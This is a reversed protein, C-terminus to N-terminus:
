DLFSHGLTSVETSQFIYQILMTSKEDSCIGQMLQAIDHQLLSREEAMQKHWRKIGAFSLPPINGQRHSYNSIRTGMEKMDALYLLKGETAGNFLAVFKPFAELPRDSGLDMPISNSPTFIVQVRRYGDFVSDESGRVRPLIRPEFKGSLRKNMVREITSSSCLTAASHPWSRGGSMSPNINQYCLGCGQSYRILESSVIPFRM